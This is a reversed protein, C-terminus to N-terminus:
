IQRTVSDKSKKDDDSSESSSSTGGEAEKLGDSCSSEETETKAASCKSAAAAAEENGSSNWDEMLEVISQIRSGELNTNEKEDRMSQLQWKAKEEELLMIKREIENGRENLLM